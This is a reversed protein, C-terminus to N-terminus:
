LTVQPSTTPAHEPVLALLMARSEDTLDNSGLALYTGEKGSALVSTATLSIGVRWEPTALTWSWTIRARAVLARRPKGRETGRRSTFPVGHLHEVVLREDGEWRLIVEHQVKVTPETTEINM